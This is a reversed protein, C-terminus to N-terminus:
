LITNLIDQDVYYILISCLDQCEQKTLQIEKNQKEIEQIREKMNM